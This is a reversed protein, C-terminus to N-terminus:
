IDTETLRDGTNIMTKDFALRVHYYGDIMISVNYKNLTMNTNRKFQIYNYGWTIRFMNEQQFEWKDICTTNCIASFKIFNAPFNYLEGTNQTKAEM